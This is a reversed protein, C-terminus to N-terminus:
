RTVIISESSSTLNCTAQIECQMQYGVCHEGSWTLGVKTATTATCSWLPYGANLDLFEVEVSWAQSTGRLVTTTSPIIDSVRWVRILVSTTEIEGGVACTSTSEPCTASVTYVGPAP